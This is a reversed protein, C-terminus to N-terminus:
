NQVIISRLKKLQEIRFEVSKSKGTNFFARQKKVIAPADFVSTTFNSLTTTNM